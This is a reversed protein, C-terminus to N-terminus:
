REVVVAVQQRSYGLYRYARQYNTTFQQFALYEGNEWNPYNFYEDFLIVTGRVIRDNLLDFITKTSSFLDCDVHMFAIPGPHEDKWKPLTEDFRGKHLTVNSQVRPLRGGMDFAGKTFTFGGWAEPLGTFTDFGHIQKDPMTRAILNMSGGTYVGFEAFSGDIEVASLAHVCLEQPTVFGVADVMNNQIYDASSVLARRQLEQLPHSQGASVFRNANYTVWYM